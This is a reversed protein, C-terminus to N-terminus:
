RYHSRRAGGACQRGQPGAKRVKLVVPKGTPSGAERAKAYCLRDTEQVWPACRIFVQREDQGEPILVGNLGIDAVIVGHPLNEVDFSVRDKHGNREIKLWASVMQGPAIMVEAPANPDASAAAPEGPKNLTLTVTLPPKDARAIKGFGNVPKTVEAGNVAATATVKAASENEPTPAPADAAAYLTGFAEVHGAEIVVPSSVTFGPPVNTVDVRIPGDFGDVRDARVVFSRGAGAPVSAGAPLELSVNFDPAAPRVVLRYTFREGGGSGRVDGVRVLYSGDAPPSFLVRSDAGLKREADDDNAYHVTFTPLGNPPLDAGAPVPEVIYCVEDLAHATASTDFYCRRKGGLRYFDWESDPGRPYLHLKVVEGQLYLYQNQEMEEWHLLRGGGSDATIPRFELMSDRVARLRVREVPRGDPHLVEVKTDAPSGRRAAVTEVVYTQGAKADVRFLDVDVSGAAGAGASMIRGNAAGPNAVATAHEPKDNPEAEVSEPGAGVTVALAKRSRFRAPDLPVPVDGAAGAKVAVAAGAPINLGVLQVSSESNPAVGMPYVGTVYAFTGVSLRYYHAESMGAMLDTVRVVYRGDAPFTHALLPDADGDFDNLTALVNGAADLLTLLLDAKSGLRKAAVDFVITQGAKADFAYGDADGRQGFEGWLSVPMAAVAQAAATAHTDNPEAEQAQPLDDVHVKVPGSAGGANAVTLNYSGAPLDAAATLQVWVREATADDPLLKAILKPDGTNAVSLAVLNKGVLQVKATSGRQVGPAKISQLEPKPPPKEAGTDALFFGLTGDLRGVAVVKDESAFALGAPWDPQVPLVLRQTMAVADWLKVTRDDASSLLAAGDASFALKLIAGEHAFHSFLIKNSGEAAAPSVQWVRIRNDAGGAVVRSGDPSWAVANLEKTSESFTDLRNGTAVDWLKVTRDASASALVKGDPRFALDFVAANHGDLTRVQGGGAVDWLIVKQDYSGTALLKGDPSLAVAYVADAHGEFTKLLQGDAVNWLRVEGVSGPEGAAAAVKAGDAAFAVDIVDGRHGELRRVVGQTEADTLDVANGRAVALLKSGRAYALGRIMPRPAVKPTVKPVAVISQMAELEQATPAAAGADVWARIAAIEASGLKAAKKPPPMFPKKQHEVLQVLLSEGSKGPVVVAGTEGGKMLGEFSTMVLEGEAEKADHCALCHKAFVAHVQAYGAAAAAPAGAARVEAGAFVGLVSLCLFAARM